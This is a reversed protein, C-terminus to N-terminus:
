MDSNGALKDVKLVSIGDKKLKRWPMRAWTEVNFPIYIVDKIAGSLTFFEGTSRQPLTFTGTM